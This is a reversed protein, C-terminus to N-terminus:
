PKTNARTNQIKIYFTTGNPNESIFHIKGRLYKETLLKMSYTGIGRGGGKTSFSRQFVQLRVPDPMVMPNSVWFTIDNGTVQAGIHITSGRESAEIANKIANVLVRHLLIRDSYVSVDIIAPDLQLVNGMNEAWPKMSAYLQQLFGALSFDSYQVALDNNEAALLQRQAMIEDNIQDSLLAITNIFDDNLFKHSDSQLLSIMGRLSGSLNLIDHFFIRELVRRRKDNSIDSLTIITYKCGNLIVPSATIRLDFNVPTGNREACIRCEDTTREGSEQAKLISKVAGCFRCYESTGCGGQELTSHLCGLIEGPRNGLIHVVSAIGFFDLLERNAYVTQREENLIAGLNPFSDLLEKYFGSNLIMEHDARIEKKTKREAPAYKTPLKM